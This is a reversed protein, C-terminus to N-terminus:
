LPILQRNTTPPTNRLQTRSDDNCVIVYSLNCAVPASITKRLMTGHVTRSSNKLLHERVADRLADHQAAIRKTSRVLRNLVFRRTM